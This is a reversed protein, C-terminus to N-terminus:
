SKTTWKKLVFRKLSLREVTNLGVRYMMLATIILNVFTIIFFRWWEKPLYTHVLNVLVFAVFTVIMLRLVVEKAYLYFSMKLLHRVFLIRSLHAILAVFIGLYLTSEASLGMSLLLYSLPFNLLLLGGTIIQYWKVRGTAQVAIHLPSGLSEVLTMVVVLQTFLISYEPYEGLLLNLIVEADFLVPASLVFVLFYTIKSAMLILDLMEKRLNLAYNKFIQPKIAMLLNTVFQTMASGVQYSIARAANIIPGFFVNLLINIGQNRLVGSIAEVLNWGSFGIIEVFIDRNWYWRMRADNFHRRSYLVLATASFLTSIFLMLAYLILTDGGLVLLSTVLGLKLLSEFISIHAFVTMREHAVIMADYPINIFSVFFTLVSIQFVWFAAQMREPPIVLYNQLVWLGGIEVM